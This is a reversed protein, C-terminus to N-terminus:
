ISKSPFDIAGGKDNSAIFNSLPVCEKGYTIQLDSCDYSMWPFEKSFELMRLPTELLAHFDNIGLNEFFFCSVRNYQYKYSHDRQTSKSSYGYALTEIMKRSKQM